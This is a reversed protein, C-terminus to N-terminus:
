KNIMSMFSNFEQGFNLGQQGFYNEAIKNINNLDGKEAYGILENIMPNNINSNKVM